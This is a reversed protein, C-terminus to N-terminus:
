EHYDEQKKVMCSKKCFCIGYKIIAKYGEELYEAEYEKEEIQKLAEGCLKEMDSFKEAKKLEMIIVAKKPDFPSLVIDPRGIGHEKNSEMAYGTFGSLIGVLYGHYFNEASDHYSIGASLQKTIFEAMAECNGELINSYFDTFDTLKIRQAFWERITNRYIYRIEMNPITLTLFITDIELRQKIVKLYGTFFLFNWLNEQTKHIDEYTIDERVPKEITGGAILDEIEKKIGEDATEILERVISNSSTNSWYPRPFANEQEAVTDIYNIVSWPNYVETDGFFYGDYWEKVERQKQKLGYDSLMKEVEAQTFGFYEAFDISLISIVKLNNLGTFISEKSIRLCGTVVAFELNDNTKLASEFLSRIFDIMREYFGEFYANELPVDYEDILIIVNTGHYQKLCSSLFELSKAYAIPEAKGAMINKYKEKTSELLKDGLLVYRHREYEKIVEDLLSHYAMEFDPQKGSKLSLSIVPYQGRKGTYKNEMQMIKKNVFYRSNDTVNGQIDMEKEFFTRLMSLTLTKGFRRPRTFINVTGGKDILEKILLTKDVYYYDNDIIRKYNEIGIAVPKKGSGMKTKGQKGNTERPNEADVPIMWRYGDKYAGKISGNQCLSNVRRKTIGWKEAIQISTLYQM